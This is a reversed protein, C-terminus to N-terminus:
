PKCIMILHTYPLRNLGKKITINVQSFFQEALAAYEQEFRVHCGRDRDLMFKAVPNQNTTYCPDITILQGDEHLAQKCIAFFSGVQQDDLHHVLAQAHIRHFKGLELIKKDDASMCYFNGLLGHNEKAFSINEPDIDIGTYSSFTLRSIIDAPGCGIDLIDETLKTQFFHELYYEQARKKGFAAMLIKYFFPKKLIKHLFTTQESM